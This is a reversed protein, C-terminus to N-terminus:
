QRGKTCPTAFPTGDYYINARAYAPWYTVDFLLGLAGRFVEPEVFEGQARREERCAELASEWKFHFALGAAMYLVILALIVISAIRALGRWRKVSLGRRQAAWLTSLMLTELWASAHAAQRTEFRLQVM